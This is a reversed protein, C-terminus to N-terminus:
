RKNKSGGRELNFVFGSGVTVGWHGCLRILGLLFPRKELPDGSTSFVADRLHEIDQDEEIAVLPRILFAFQSSLLDGVRRRHAHPLDIADRLTEDFVTLRRRGVLLRGLAGIQFFAVAFELRM